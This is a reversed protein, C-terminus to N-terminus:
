LYKLRDLWDEAQTSEVIEVLQAITEAFTADPNLILLGACTRGQVLHEAFHRPFTAHDKSVIVCHTGEAWSLLEPDPTGKPPAPPCGVRFCKTAPARRRLAEELIARVHEDLLFAVPRM